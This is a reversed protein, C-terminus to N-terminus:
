QTFNPNAACQLLFYLTVGTQFIGAILLAVPWPVGSGALILFVLLGGIFTLAAWFGLNAVLCDWYTRNSKLQNILHDALQAPAYETLMPPIYPLRQKLSKAIEDVTTKSTIGLSRVEDAPMPRIPLGYIGGDVWRLRRDTKKVEKIRRGLHKSTEVLVIDKIQVPVLSGNNAIRMLTSRDVSVEDFGDLFLLQDLEKVLTILQTRARKPVIERPLLDLLDTLTSDAM